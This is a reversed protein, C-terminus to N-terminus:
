GTFVAALKDVLYALSPVEQMVCERVHRTADTLHANLIADRQAPNPKGDALAPLHACELVAALLTEVNSELLVVRLSGREHAPRLKATLQRKCAAAPLGALTHARDADYVAVVLANRDFLQPKECAARVKSNSNMPHGDVSGRLDWLSTDLRDALCALVFNHPGFDKPTSGVSDEYLVLARQV